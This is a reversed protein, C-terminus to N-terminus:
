FLVYAMAECFVDWAFLLLLQESLVFSTYCSTMGHNSLGVCFLNCCYFSQQFDTGGHVVFRALWRSWVPNSAVRGSVDCVNFGRFHADVCGSFCDTGTYNCWFSSRPQLRKTYSPLYAKVCVCCLSSFYHNILFSKKKASWAIRYM